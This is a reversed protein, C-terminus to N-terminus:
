RLPPAAILVVSFKGATLPATTIVLSIDRAVTTRVTNAGAFDPVISKRGASSWPAGSFAADVVIDGAGEVQISATALGGSALPTVIELWGGLITASPPILEDTSGILAISGVVGGDVAFDYDGRFVVPEFGFAGEPIPTYDIPM